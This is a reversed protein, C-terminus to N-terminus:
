LPWRYKDSALEARRDDGEAAATAQAGEIKRHPNVLKDEVLFQSALVEHVQRGIDAFINDEFKWLPCQAAFVALSQTGM